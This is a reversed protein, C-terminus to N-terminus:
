RQKKTEKMEEIHQREKGTSTEKEKEKEGAEEEEEEEGQEKREANQVAIRPVNQVLYTVVAGGAVCVALVM